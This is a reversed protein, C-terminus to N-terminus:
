SLGFHAVSVKPQNHSISPSIEWFYFDPDSEAKVINFSFKLTKCTPDFELLQLWESEPGFVSKPALQM